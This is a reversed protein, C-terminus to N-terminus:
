HSSTGMLMHQLTHCHILWVGPADVRIRMVRWGADVAAGAVPVYQHLSSTDRKLPQIGDAVLRAENAEADYTGNGSGCDFFHNGHFHIPHVDVTGDILSGTNQFVIELVEGPRAAYARTEPDYGNNQLATEFSPLAAEGQTYIEVLLPATASKDTWTQNNLTWIRHGEETFYQQTTITVRRTVDALSPFDSHPVLPRLANGEVFNFTRDPISVPPNAPPLLPYAACIDTNTYRLVGYNLKTPLRDRSEMQISYTSRAEAALEDLTKATFLMDYRQGSGLSLYDVVSPQTYQGGDVGIITLNHGEMALVTHALGTAGIFRFRYTKGAEIDM